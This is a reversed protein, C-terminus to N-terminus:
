ISNGFTWVEIGNEMIDRSILSRTDVSICNLNKNDLNISEFTIVTLFVFCPWFDRGRVLSVVATGVSFLVIEMIKSSQLSFAVGTLGFLKSKITVLMLGFSEEFM